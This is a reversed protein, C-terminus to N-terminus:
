ISLRTISIEGRFCVDVDSGATRPRQAYVGRYLLVGEGEEFSVPLPGRELAAERMAPDQDGAGLHPLNVNWYEGPELRNEM